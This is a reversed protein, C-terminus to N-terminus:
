QGGSKRDFWKCVLFSAVNAAVATLFSILLEVNSVEQGRWTYSPLLMIIAGFPM